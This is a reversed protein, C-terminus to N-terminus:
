DPGLELSPQVLFLGSQNHSLLGNGCSGCLIRGRLQIEVPRASGAVSEDHASGLGIETWFLGIQWELRDVELVQLYLSSRYEHYFVDAAIYVYIVM